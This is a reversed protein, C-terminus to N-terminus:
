CTLHFVGMVRKHDKLKNYAECADKSPLVIVEIGRAKLERLVEEGVKMLGSSGTGIVLVDIVVKSLYEEVDEFHLRHGEIRWWNPFVGEPTIVLDSSYTVGDIVIEGFVYKDIKPASGM